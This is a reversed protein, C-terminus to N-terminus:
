REVCIVGAGGDEGLSWVVQPHRDGGRGALAVSAAALASAAGLDGWGRAPLLPRPEDELRPLLSGWARDRWPEGTLDTWDRHGAHLELGAARAAACLRDADDLPAHARDGPLHGAGRLRGSGAGDRALLWWAAAEGPAIGLSTEPGRLREDAALWALSAPDLLSDVALVLVRSWAGSALQSDARVLAAAAAAHGLLFTERARARAPLAGTLTAIAQDFMDPDPGWRLPEPLPLAILLADVEGPDDQRLLETWASAALAQWRPGAGLGTAPGARHGVAPGHEDGVGLGPGWAIPEALSLDGRLAAEAVDAPGLPSCLGTARIICSM